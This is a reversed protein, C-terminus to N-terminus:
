WDQLRHNRWKKGICGDTHRRLRLIGNSRKTSAMKLHDKTTRHASRVTTQNRIIRKRRKRLFQTPQENKETKTERLDSQTKRCVSEFVSSTCRALEFPRKARYCADSTREFKDKTELRETDTRLKYEKTILRYLVFLAQGGENTKEGPFCAQNIRKFWANDLLGSAVSLLYKQTHKEDQYVANIPQFIHEELYLDRQATKRSTKKRGSNRRQFFQRWEKYFVSTEKGNYQVTYGAWKEVKASVKMLLYCRVWELALHKRCNPSQAAIKNLVGLLNDLPIFLDLDKENFGLKKFFYHVVPDPFFLAHYYLDRVELFLERPYEKLHAYTKKQLRQLDMSMMIEQLQPQFARM